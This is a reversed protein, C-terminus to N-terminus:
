RYKTNKFPKENYRKAHAPFIANEALLLASIILSKDRVNVLYRQRHTILLMLM